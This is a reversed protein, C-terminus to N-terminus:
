VHFVWSLGYYTILASAIALEVYFVRWLRDKISM